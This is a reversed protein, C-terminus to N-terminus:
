RKYYDFNGDADWNSCRAGHVQAIHICVNSIIDHIPRLPDDQTLGRGASPNCTSPLPHTSPGGPALHTGAAAAAQLIM